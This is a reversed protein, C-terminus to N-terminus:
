SQNKSQSMEILRCAEEYELPTNIDHIIHPSKTPPLLRIISRDDLLALCSTKGAALLEPAKLLTKKPYLALLPNIYGNQESCVADVNPQFAKKLKKLWETTLYPLDCTLLFVAEVDTILLPLADVIGQMPGQEPQSDRGIRIYNYTESSIKPLKQKVALMVVTQFVLPKVIRVLRELLTQGGIKLSAKDTGM